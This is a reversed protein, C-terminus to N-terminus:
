RSPWKWPPDELPGRGAVRTESLEKTLEILTCSASQQLAQRLQASHTVVWVQAQKSAQLILEALVPLLQPHLSTEPENLVMLHPPRPTMLAALWLLFRLTGESLESQDLPRLLGPQGFRLALRGQVLELALTAGPFARDVLTHLLEQDGVEQITALASALDGGDDSLVETRTAVQWLRAPAGQDGRFHDYFRWSRLYNRLHLAEPARWPDAIESLMSQHSALNDHLPIWEGDEDRTLAAPGRRDLVAAAPRYLAGHWVCERKIEPDRGFFAHGDKPIGMELGYSGVSSAFGLKVHVPEKRRVGQVAAAGTRMGRSFEEPGAWLVSELGGEAALTAAVTGNAAEQLLRLARYLNSKGSGNEGVVVNLPGLELVLSRVSRYGAIALTQLVSGRKPAIPTPAGRRHGHGQFWGGV